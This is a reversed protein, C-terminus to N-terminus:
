WGSLNAVKPGGGGGQFWSQIRWQNLWNNEMLGVLSKIDTENDRIMPGQLDPHYLKFSGQGIMGRLTILYVVRYKATLYYRIAAGPKLSFM